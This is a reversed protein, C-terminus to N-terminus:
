FLPPGEFKCTPESCRPQGKFFRRLLCLSRNLLLECLEKLARCQVLQQRLKTIHWMVFSLMCDSTRSMCECCPSKCLVKACMICTNM